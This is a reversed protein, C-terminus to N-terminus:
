KLQGSFFINKMTIILRIMGLQIIFWEKFPIKDFQKKKFFRGKAMCIEIASEANCYGKYYKVPSLAVLLVDKIHYAKTYQLM